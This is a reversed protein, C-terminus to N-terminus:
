NQNIIISQIHQQREEKTMKNNFFALYIATLLALKIGFFITIKRYLNSRNKCRFFIVLYIIYGLYLALIGYM